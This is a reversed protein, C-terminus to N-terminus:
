EHTSCMAHRCFLNAYPMKALWTGIVYEEIHGHTLTGYGRHADWDGGFYVLMPPAGAGFNYWQNQGLAMHKLVFGALFDM